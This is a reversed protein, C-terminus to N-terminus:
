QLTLETLQLPLHVSRFDQQFLQPLQLKAAAVCGRRAIVSAVVEKLGVAAALVEVLASAMEEQQTTAAGSDVVM